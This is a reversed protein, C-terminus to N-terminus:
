LIGRRGRFKCRTAVQRLGSWDSLAIRLLVCCSVDLTSRRGRLIVISVDLTSCRGRFSAVCRRLVDCFTNHRGCLVVKSVNLRFTVFHWAQWAFRLLAIHAVELLSVKQLVYCLCPWIPSARITASPQAVDLPRAFVGLGWVGLTFRYGKSHM